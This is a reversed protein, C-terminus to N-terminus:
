KYKKIREQIIDDRNPDNEYMVYLTTEICELFSDHLREECYNACERAAKMVDEFTPNQLTISDETEEVFDGMCLYDRIEDIMENTLLSFENDELFDCFLDHQEFVDDMEAFVQVEVGTENRHVRMSQIEKKFGHWGTDFPENSEIAKRLEEENGDYFDGVGWSGWDDFDFMKLGGNRKKCYENEFHIRTEEVAKKRCCVFWNKDLDREM